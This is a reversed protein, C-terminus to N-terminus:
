AGIFYSSIRRMMLYLYQRRTSGVGRMDELEMARLLDSIESETTDLEERWDLNHMFALWIRATRYYLLETVERLVANGIVELLAEQLENCVRAYEVPSPPRRKLDRVRARLRKLDDLVQPTPPLPSLVGMAEALHMRLDYIDKFTKVDLDTVITGIGNRTVVLGEYGLRQLVNRVPTRSVAFEEALQSENLVTGPPYHLLCIGERIGRYIRDFRESQSERRPPDAKGARQKSAAM